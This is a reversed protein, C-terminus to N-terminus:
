QQLRLHKVYSEVNIWSSEVALQIKMESELNDNGNVINIIADLFHAQSPISFKQLLIKKVDDDELMNKLRCLSVAIPDQM